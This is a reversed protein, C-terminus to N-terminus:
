KEQRRQNNRLRDLLGLVVDPTFTKLYTLDADSTDLDASGDNCWTATFPGVGQLSKSGDPYTTTYEEWPGPHAAAAINRLEEDNDELEVLRHAIITAIAALNPGPFSGAMALYHMRIRQDRTM